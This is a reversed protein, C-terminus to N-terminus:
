GGLMSTLQSQQANLNNMATELTSFQQYYKEQDDTYSKTLKTIMLQQYYLQDPLTHTGGSGSVSYDDQVNAYKTLISSNFTTGVYGVNNKLIDSLRSFVGNENFKQTTDTATSANSFFNLLQDSHKSIADMLETKNAITIKGGQSYDDSTDIGIANSGYQGFSLGSNSVPSVFASRLDSLLKTLNDDDKLVGQQAKVNWAAIDSASMSAKQADTLPKYTNDKKQSIATQIKDVVANYKDLFGSIKDYVKQSNQVVTFNSDKASTLSYTIDDVTFNNSSKTVLTGTAAGPPTIYVNADKGVIGYTSDTNTATTGSGLNLKQMFTTPNSGAVSIDLTTNAGTSATQISFQGTLESYKAKVSNGTANNILAAIDSLTSGETFNITKSQLGLGNGSNYNVTMSYSGATVGLDSLKTSNSAMVAPSANTMIKTASTVGAAQALNGVGPDGINTDGIPKTFSIGYAGAQAGVGATVAAATTAGSTVADAISVDFASYANASLMSTSPSNVDFFSSQLDKVSKIIDTYADQKWQVTQKDQNAKDIKLQDSALMKKVMSDVDLGSAMGTLRMINGGGAGSMGTYTTSSTSSVDSM